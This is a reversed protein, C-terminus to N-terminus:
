NTLISKNKEFNAASNTELLSIIVTNPVTVM